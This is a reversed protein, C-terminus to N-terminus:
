PIVESKLVANGDLTADFLSRQRPHMCAPSFWIREKKGNLSREEALSGYGQGANWSYVAWDDPMEHEGDYGCLAIRMLKHQGWEIAWRRVDHAVSTSDERYLGECRKATDAYPPDLFVGTM